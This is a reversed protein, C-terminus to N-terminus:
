RTGAPRPCPTNDRMVPRTLTTQRTSGHRDSLCSVQDDTVCLTSVANAYAWMRDRMFEMREEELDQCTDCFEKWDAEWGPILDLLAKTFNAFDKENAQVTQRARKLKLQIREFDKGETVTSQQTYSNIRLCDGEYKERAKLVYSEQTQKAKFKKELPTQFNKKHETQKNFFISTELELESNIQSALRLHSTAQSETEIRLTDLSNRLERLFILELLV